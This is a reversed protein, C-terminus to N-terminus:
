GQCQSDLHLLHFTLSSSVEYSKDRAQSLKLCSHTPESPPFGEVCIVSVIYLSRPSTDAICWCLQTLLASSVCFLLPHIACGQYRGIGRWKPPRQIHVLVFTVLCLCRRKLLVESLHRALYCALDELSCPTLINYRLAWAILFLLLLNVLSSFCSFYRFVIWSLWYEVWVSILCCLDVTLQVVTCLCVVTLACLHLGNPVLYLDWVRCFLGFNTMLLWYTLELQTLM